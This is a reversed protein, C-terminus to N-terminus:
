ELGFDISALTGPLDLSDCFVQGVEKRLMAAFWFAPQGFGQLGAAFDKSFKKGLLVRGVRPREVFGHVCGQELQM